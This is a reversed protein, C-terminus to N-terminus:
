KLALRHSKSPLFDAINPMRKEAMINYNLTVYEKGDVIPVLTFELQINNDKKYMGTLDGDFVFSQPGFDSNFEFITYNNTEDYIMNSITDSLIFSDYVKLNKAIDVKLELTEDYFENYLENMTLITNNVSVFTQIDNKQTNVHDTSAVIFRKDGVTEFITEVGDENVAVIFDEGVLSQNSHSFPLMCNDGSCNHVLDGRHFYGIWLNWQKNTSDKYYVTHVGTKKPTYATIGNHGIRVDRQVQSNGPEFIMVDVLPNYGTSQQHVWVDIMHNTSVVEVDKQVTPMNNSFTISGSSSTDYTSGLSNIPNRTLIKQMSQNLGWFVGKVAVNRAVSTGSLIEVGDFQENYDEVENQIPTKALTVGSFSSISLLFVVFLSMSFRFVRM